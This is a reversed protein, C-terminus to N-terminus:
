FLSKKDESIVPLTFQFTAGRDPNERAWFKGGHAEIISRNIALGEAKTTHFPEFLRDADQGNFGVGTDQISVCVAKEGQWATRIVLRRENVPMEQMADFSNVILNLLVQQLQVRDGSVPPLGEALDLEMSVHTEAGVVLEMSVPTEAGVVM